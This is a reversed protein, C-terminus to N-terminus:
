CGSAVVMIEGGLGGGIWEMIGSGDAGIMLTPATAWRGELFKVRFFFVFKEIIGCKVLLPRRLGSEAEWRGFVELGKWHVIIM